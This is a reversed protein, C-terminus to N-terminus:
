DVWGDIYNKNLEFYQAAIDKALSYSNVLPHMTLSEVIDKKSRNVIGRAVLREYYKVRRILELNGAPVDTEKVAHPVCSDVTVDCTAEIVDTDMLGPIAGNNPSCLIMQQKTGSNAIEMFRLAVGAYGGEDPGFMDFSWTKDRHIGTENAMYANERVGYWKEFCRLATDFDKDIDIQSLERIMNRNVAEILEGRTQASHLINEVAKERYYFYYLYENLVSKRSQVLDKEFFRLDTHKYAGDDAILEPLINNGDIEITRFYSLHNLGYCEGTVRSPEVHRYDAIQRLMGSPADCIGFTFDYGMDRLAQSVVGAPNTFNFVKVGPHSYKRILDCYNALAPVSRMAFSVGAAGTTEQGLVGHALAIREDRVRMHDGGVRITTIIYDADTVAVIPDTTLILELEPCLAASVHQAMKGFISLKEQDNDMFVLQDIHLHSAKQAISKALFMSRVGGGGIVTLKMKGDTRELIM